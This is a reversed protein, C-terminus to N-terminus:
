QLPTPSPRIPKSIEETQIKKINIEVDINKAGFPLEVLKVLKPIMPKGPDMFFSGENIPSFELYEQSYENIKIESVEINLSLLNDNKKDFDSDLGAVVAGFGSIILIGIIIINLIKKM